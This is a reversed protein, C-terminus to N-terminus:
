FQLSHKAGAAHARPILHSYLAGADLREDALYSEVEVAEGDKSHWEGYSFKYEATDKDGRVALRMCRSGSALLVAERRRGNSDRIILYM